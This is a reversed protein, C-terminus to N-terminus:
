QTHVEKVEEMLTSEMEVKVEIKDGDRSVRVTGGDIMVMTDGQFDRAELEKVINRAVGDVEHGAHGKSCCSAMAGHHACGHGAAGHCFVEGGCGGRDCGRDSCSRAVLYGLGFGILTFLLIKAWNTNM